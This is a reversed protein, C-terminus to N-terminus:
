MEEYDPACRSPGDPAFKQARKGTDVEATYINGKSDTALNHVWHFQGANRGGSGFTDVIRLSRRALVWVKQNTGDPNFLCSQRKDASTDVDWTSGNGLTEAAIFKEKVFGCRGKKMDPNSCENGARYKNFVQIRNNVRDCVYVLRGVVRVCHVPNKFNPDPGIPYPPAAPDVDTVPNQGYAGWHRRYLGNEANVVLVRHNGYGDAIYLENTEPDVEMDAPRYPQPTVNSAGDIDNSNAETAGPDGIQYIFTGNSSFKLVMSDSGHTGAWPCAVGGCTGTGNGNGAIYVYDNHDVYIGHEGAPWQCGAAPDCGPEGPAHPGIFGPDAPGGWAQLLHGYRDFQMVAPAPLCCAAEPGDSRDYGNGDIPLPTSADPCGSPADLLTGDECRYAIAETAWAEDNTLSRARQILWVNDQRDVALGGVQGVLWNNPLKKPWTADVSYSHGRDEGQAGQPALGVAVGLGVLIAGSGIV